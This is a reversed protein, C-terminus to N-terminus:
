VIYRNRSLMRPCVWVVSFLVYIGGLTLFMAFVFFIRHEMTPIWVDSYFLLVFIIAQALLSTKIFFKAGEKM